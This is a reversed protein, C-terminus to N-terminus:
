IEYQCHYSLFFQGAFSGALLLEFPGIYKTSKDTLIDKGLAYMPFYIMSFPIDRLFCASSGRYMGKLGLDQLIGMIGKSSKAEGAVQLRVKVIEAPNTILVQCAGASTGAIIEAIYKVAKSPPKATSQNQNTPKYFNIVSTRVTDVVFLRMAKEPVQGILNPVLGKYLKLFGENRLVKMFCDISNKYKKDLQSSGRQNQMRTKVLDIPYVATAGFASATASITFGKLNEMIATRVQTSSSPVQVVGIEATGEENNLSGKSELRSRALQIAKEKENKELAEIIKKLHDREEQSGM